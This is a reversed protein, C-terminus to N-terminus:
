LLINKQILIKSNSSKELSDKLDKDNLLVYTNYTNDKNLINLNTITKNIVKRYNYGTKDYYIIDINTSTSLLGSKLYYFPKVNPIEFCVTSDKDYQNFGIFVNSRNLINPKTDLLRINKRIYLEKAKIYKGPLILSNVLSFSDPDV